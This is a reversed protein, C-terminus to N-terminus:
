PTTLLIAPSSVLQSLAKRRSTTLMNPPIVFSEMYGDDLVETKFSLEGCALKLYLSFLRPRIGSGNPVFVSLEFTDGCPEVKMGFEERM